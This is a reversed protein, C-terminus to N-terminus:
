PSPALTFGALDVTGGDVSVSRSGEGTASITAASEIHKITGKVQLTRV